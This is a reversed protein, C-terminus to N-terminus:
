HALALLRAGTLALALSSARGQDPDQTTEKSRTGKRGSPLAGGAASPPTCPSRPKRSVATTPPGLPAGPPPAVQSFTRVSSVKRRRGSARPSPSESCGHFVKRQSLFHQTVGQGGDWREVRMDLHPPTGLRLGLSLFGWCELGVGAATDQVPPCQGWLFSVPSNSLCRPCHVSTSIRPVLALVRAQGWAWGGRGRWSGRRRQEARCGREAGWLWGRPLARGGRRPCPRPQLFPTLTRAGHQSGM